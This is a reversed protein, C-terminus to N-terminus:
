KKCNFFMDPFSLTFTSVNLIVISVNFNLTHLTFILTRGNEPHSLTM